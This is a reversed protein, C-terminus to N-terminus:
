KWYSKSGATTGIRIYYHPSGYIENISQTLQNIHIGLEGSLLILQGSLSYLGEPTVPTLQLKILANKQWDKNHFDAIKDPYIMHYYKHVWGLSNMNFDLNNDFETQLQIYESETVNEKNTLRELIESGRVLNDRVSRAKTIAEEETLEEPKQSSGTMWVGDSNRRFIIFKYASGGSISGYTTTQFDDDNKFELWYVLSNRNGLNFLTDLLLKGDLTKLKDPSFKENFLRYGTELQEETPMKKHQLLHKRTELLKDSLM